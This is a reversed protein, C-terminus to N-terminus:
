GLHSTFRIQYILMGAQFHNRPGRMKWTDMRFGSVCAPGIQIVSNSELGFQLRLTQSAYINGHCSPHSTQSFVPSILFGLIFPVPLADVMWCSQDPVGPTHM